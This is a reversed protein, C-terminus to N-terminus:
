GATLSIRWRYPDDALATLALMGQLRAGRIQAVIKAPTEEITAYQGQEVRHVQGRDGAVEGEYDLYALRHDPLRDGIVTEGIAPLNEIAWTWLAGEHELMLDFHTARSSGAPMEHRLIVFRPM